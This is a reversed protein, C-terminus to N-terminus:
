DTRLRHRIGCAISVRNINRSKHASHHLSPTSYRPGMIPNPNPGHNNRIPLDTLAALTSRLHPPRPRHSDPPASKWSFSRFKDAYSGYRLGVCTNLELLTLRVLSLDGLFEAFYRGYSRFIAQEGCPSGCRFIMLCSNVLFM